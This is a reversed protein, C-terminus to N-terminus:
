WWKVGQYIMEIATYAIIPMFCLRIRNAKMRVMLRAGVIAGLLVGLVVPGAVLPKV